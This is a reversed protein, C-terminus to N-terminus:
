FYVAVAEAGAIHNAQIQPSDVLQNFSYNLGGRIGFVSYRFGFVSYRIRLIISTM